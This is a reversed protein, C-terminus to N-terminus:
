NSIKRDIEIDQRYGSMGFTKTTSKVLYTGSRDKVIPDTLIVADQHRVSPEGFTKIKGRFGTYFLKTFEEEARKKLEAETLQYFYLTRQQGDADGKEYTYTTNDKNINIAKLKIKIDDKTQWELNNEVINTDFALAVDRRLSSIYALGVFLVGDRIFTEFGYTKKLEEFVQSVNANPFVEFVGVSADIYKVNTKIDFDTGVLAYELVDKVKANDTSKFKKPKLVTQKLKWLADQCDIVMPLKPTIGSIYGDFQKVLDDGTGDANKEYGLWIEVGVGRKLLPNTGTVIERDQLTIKKSLTIRATDTLDAWSSKIEIESAYDYIITPSTKFIIQCKLRIM